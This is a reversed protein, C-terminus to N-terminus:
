TVRMMSPLALLVLTGFVIMIIILIGMVKFYAKLNRFGENLEGQDLAALGKKANKGFMYLFYSLLFSIALAVLTGFVATGTVTTQYDEFGPTVKPRFLSSLSSVLTSTFSIIALSSTWNALASLQTRATDDIQIDLFSSEQQPTTDM